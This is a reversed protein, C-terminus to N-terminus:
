VGANNNNAQQQLNNRNFNYSSLKIVIIKSSSTNFIISTAHACWQLGDIYKRITTGIIDQNYLSLIIIIFLIRQVRKTRTIM